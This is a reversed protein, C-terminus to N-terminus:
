YLADGTIRDFLVCNATDLGISIPDGPALQNIAAPNTRLPLTSSDPLQIFVLVDPLIRRISTVVGNLAGPSGEPLRYVYEPRVLLFVPQGDVLRSEIVPPLPISCSQIQILPGHERVSITGSLRAPPVSSALHATHINIPRYYLADATGTQVISGERMVAITDAVAFAEEPSSAAYLMTLCFERRISGLCSIFTGHDRSPLTALPEDLVVLDPEDIIARGLATLAQEIPNLMDPTSELLTKLPLYTLLRQLRAAMIDPHTARIRMGFLLNKRVSMNPYLAYDQFVMGIRRLAPKLTDVRQGDLRIEGSVLPIFGAVTELLSSKGSGSDGLLALCDGDGISLSVASLAPHSATTVRDLALHPM